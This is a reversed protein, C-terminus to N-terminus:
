WTYWNCLPIEIKKFTASKQFINFNFRSFKIEECMNNFSQMQVGTSLNLNFCFCALVESLFQHVGVKWAIVVQGSSVFVEWRNRDPIHNKDYKLLLSRMQLKWLLLVSWFLIFFAPWFPDSLEFYVSGDYGYVFAIALIESWSQQQM